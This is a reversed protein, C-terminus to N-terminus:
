LQQAKSVLKKPCTTEEDKQLGWSGRPAVTLPADQPAPPKVSPESTPVTWPIIEGDSASSKPSGISPVQHYLSLSQNTTQHGHIQCKGLFIPFTMMGISSSMNKLPTAWGGVLPFFDRIHLNGSDYPYGWNGDKEIPYQWFFFLSKPTGGNWSVGM